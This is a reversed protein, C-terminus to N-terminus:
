SDLQWPDILPLELDEFDKANRTVLTLDHVLATAALLGDAIGRTRKAAIAGWEMAIRNTVPLIRAGFDLVLGDLWSWLQEAARRDTRARMAAGKNIEGLSIVSLYLSAPEASNLWVSPQPAGRLADSLVNTDILYM